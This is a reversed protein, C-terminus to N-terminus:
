LNKIEKIVKIRIDEDEHCYSANKKLIKLVEERCVNWAEQKELRFVDSKVGPYKKKYWEQFTM